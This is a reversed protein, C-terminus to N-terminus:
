GVTMTISPSEGPPVEEVHVMLVTWEGHQHQSVIRGRHTLPLVFLDLHGNVHQAVNDHVM